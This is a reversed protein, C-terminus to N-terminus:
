FSIVMAVARKGKKGVRRERLLQGLSVFFFRLPSLLLIIIIISTLCMCRCPLFCLRVFSGCVCVFFFVIFVFHMFADDNCAQELTMSSLERLTSPSVRPRLSACPVFKFFLVYLSSPPFHFFFGFCTAKGVSEVLKLFYFTPLRPM